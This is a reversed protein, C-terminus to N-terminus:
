YSGVGRVGSERRPTPQSTENGKGIASNSTTSAVRNLPRDGEGGRQSLTQRASERAHCRRPPRVHPLPLPPRHCRRAAAPQPPRPRPPCRPPPRHCRRSTAAAPLPPYRRAHDRHAAAPRATAAAPRATAAAPPPLPPCRWRRTTAPTAAAPLPPANRVFMDITATTRLKSGHYAPCTPATM